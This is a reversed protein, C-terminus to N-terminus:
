FAEFLDEPLEGILKWRWLEARSIGWLKAAKRDSYEELGERCNALYDVITDAPRWNPQDSHPHGGPSCPQQPLGSM